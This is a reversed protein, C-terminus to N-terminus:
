STPDGTDATGDVFCRLYGIPSLEIFIMRGFDGYERKRYIARTENRAYSHMYAEFTMM